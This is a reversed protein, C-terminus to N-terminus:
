HLYMVDVDVIVVVALFFHLSNVRQSRRRSYISFGARKGLRRRRRRRTCLKKVGNPSCVCLAWVSVCQTHLSVLQLRRSSGVKM